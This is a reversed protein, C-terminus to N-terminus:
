IKEEFNIKSKLKLLEQNNLVIYLKYLIIFLNKVENTNINNTLDILMNSSKNIIVAGVRDIKINLRQEAILKYGYLQLALLLDIPNAVTKWDILWIEDGIKRINDITGAFTMNDSKYFGKFENHLNEVKYTKALNEEFLLYQEFYDETLDNPKAFNYKLHREILKHVKSGLYAKAMLTQINIEEYITKSIPSLIQTVSPVKIGNLSYVHNPEDFNLTM